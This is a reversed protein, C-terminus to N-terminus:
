IRPSAVGKVDMELNEKCTIRSSSKLSEWDHSQDQPGSMTTRLLTEPIFACFNAQGGAGFDHRGGEPGGLVESSRCHELFFHSNICVSLLM